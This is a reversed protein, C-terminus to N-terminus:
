RKYRHLICGGFHKFCPVLGRGGCEFLEQDSIQQGPVAVPGNRGRLDSTLNAAQQATDAAHVSITNWMEQLQERELEEGQEQERQPHDRQPQEGQPQEYSRM